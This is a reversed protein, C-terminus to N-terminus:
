PSRVPSSAKELQPWTLQLLCGSSLWASVAASAACTEPSGTMLTWSLFRGAPSTPAGTVYAATLRDLPLTAKLSWAGRLSCPLM